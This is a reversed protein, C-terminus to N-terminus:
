DKKEEKGQKRQVAKQHIMERLSLAIALLACTNAFLLFGSASVNMWSLGGPYVVKVAVGALLAAASILILINVIRNIIKM